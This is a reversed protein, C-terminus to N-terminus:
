HSAGPAENRGSGPDVSWSGTDTVVGSPLPRAQDDPHIRNKATSRPPPVYQAREANEDGAALKVTSRIQFCPFMHARTHTHQLGLRKSCTICSFVKM